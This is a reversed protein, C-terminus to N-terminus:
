LSVCHPLFPPAGSFVISFSSLQFFTSTLVFPFVSLSLALLSLLVSRIFLVSKIVSSHLQGSKIHSFVVVVGRTVYNLFSKSSQNLSCFIQYLSWFFLFRGLARSTEGWNQHSKAECHGHACVVPSLAVCVCVKVQVLPFGSTNSQPYVPSAASCWSCM